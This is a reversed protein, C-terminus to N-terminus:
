GERMGAPWIGSRGPAIIGNPDIADKITEHFRRLVHDNYSMTNMTETHFAVPSRYKCWGHEAAVKTLRRYAQRSKRNVGTDRSVPLGILFLAARPLWLPPLTAFVRNPIGAENLVEGFVRQAEFVAEGNKPIIAGFAFHGWEADPNRESRALMDWIALNPIGFEVLHERAALEEPTLPFRYRHGEQFRASAIASFKDRSYEYHADNVNELGYFRLQCTWYPIDHQAAFKELAEPDPGGARGLLEALATDGAVNRM